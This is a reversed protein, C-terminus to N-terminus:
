VGAVIVADALIAGLRDLMAESLANRRAQDDLTVRLIGQADKNIQLLGTVDHKKSLDM